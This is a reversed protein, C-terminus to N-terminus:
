CIQFCMESAFMIILQFDTDTHKHKTETSTIVPEVETDAIPVLRHQM